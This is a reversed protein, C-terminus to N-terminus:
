RTASLRARLAEREDAQKRILQRLEAEYKDEFARREKIHQDELARIAARDEPRLAIAPVAAFPTLGWNGPEGGPDVAAAPPALQASAPPAPLFGSACVAAIAACIISPKRM